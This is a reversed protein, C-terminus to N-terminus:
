LARFNKDANEGGLNEGFKEGFQIVKAEKVGKAVWADIELNSEMRELDEARSRTRPHKPIMFSCCDEHPRISIEFTGIKQAEAVIEMKDWGILPRFVPLTAVSEITALNSLTQSAVQSLSEGTVLAQCHYERALTQAMRLMMRRYLIVRYEEPTKAIIQRQIEGFPISILVGDDQYECLVETLDLAKEESQASAFPASHFHIFVVECGRRMMRWAAVPSDIGGSLLCAVRGASGVPLGGPGPIKEFGYFIKDHFLEIHLTTEPADLHVAAGTKEQIFRGIEENVFQSGVPFNKEARKARVAFSTFKQGRRERRGLECDLNKKLDALSPEAVGCPIFNALGFIKSLRQSVAQVDVPAAFEAIFRGPLKHVSLPAISACKRRIRTRLLNEFFSRNKNKLAIEGYHILTHKMELKKLQSSNQDFALPNM